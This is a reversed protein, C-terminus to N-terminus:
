YLVSLHLYLLIYECFGNEGKLNSTVRRTKKNLLQITAMFKYHGPMDSPQKTLISYCTKAKSFSIRYNSSNIKRDSEDSDLHMLLKYTVIMNLSISSRFNSIQKHKLSLITVIGSCPMFKFIYIASTSWNKNSRNM